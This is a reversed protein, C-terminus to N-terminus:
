FDRKESNKENTEKIRQKLRKERSDGHPSGEADPAVIRAVQSDSLTPDNRQMEAMRKVLPEDKKRYGGSGKPRGRKRVNPRMPLGPLEEEDLLATSKPVSDKVPVGEALPPVRLAEFVLGCNCCEWLGTDGLVGIRHECFAPLNNLVDAVLFRPENGLVSVKSFPTGRIRPEEEYLELHAFEHPEVRRPRRADVPLFVTKIQGSRWLVQLFSFPRKGFAWWNRNDESAAAKLVEAVSCFRPTKLAATDRFIVFDLWQELCCYMPYADPLPLNARSEFDQKEEPTESKVPGIGANSSDFDCPKGM